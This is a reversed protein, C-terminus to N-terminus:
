LFGPQSNNYFVLFIFRVREPQVGTEVEAVASSVKKHDKVIHVVSCCNYHFEIM